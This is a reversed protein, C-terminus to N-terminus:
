KTEKKPVLVIDVRRNQERGENTENSAVPRYEGFGVLVFNEPAVKGKDALYKLVVAARSASLEWNSPYKERLAGTIAQNDAHGEVRIEQGKIEKLVDAIRLLVKQGAENLQSRGSDFLIREEMAISLSDDKQKVQVTGQAIEGKLENVIEDYYGRVSRVIREREEALDKESASLEKSMQMNQARLAAMKREHTQISICSSFSVAMLLLGLLSRVSLNKFIEVTAHSKNLTYFHIGPAGKALLDQCQETAHEIGIRVVDEKDAAADLKKLLVEPLKAGCLSTFRKIQDTDTVPMIGAVVPVKIGLKRVKEVFQFYDANNFFLQTVIFDAGKSVKTQLNKLDEEMSRAEVHKEPYGAVGVCFRFKERILAVLDAAYRFGDKAPVFTTEGKPPDGRLALINEVGAKELESLIIALEAESHGVCTLHAAAEIGIENKIKSVLQVTKQRTSGGAGYTMSVFSPKLEKLRAVTQMLTSLGEDTKPPFFEFSFVPRGRGFLESIKM